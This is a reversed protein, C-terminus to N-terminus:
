SKTRKGMDLIPPRKALDVRKQSEGLWAAFLALAVVIFIVSAPIWMILGGLQQDELASYGGAAPRIEYTPYWVRHAFTLLAGLASSHVATIWVFIVAMGYGKRGYRGQILVWWFLFATLFFCSHQAAHVWDSHLTAEYLTPIHWTWLAVAHVVLVVVPSTMTKWASSFLQGKSLEGLRVRWSMPLAWLSAVMPKGIVLLPASILMLIEHQGMHVSFYQGGLRHIPSILALVLSWWGGWFAVKTWRALSGRLPMRRCGQWYLGASVLLLVVTAPDFTWWTWWSRAHEEGAHAFLLAPAMLWLAAVFYRHLRM